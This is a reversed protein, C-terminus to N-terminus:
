IISYFILQKHLAPRMGLLHRFSVGPLKEFRTERTCRAHTLHQHRLHGAKEAPLARECGSIVEALHMEQATFDEEIERVSSVM